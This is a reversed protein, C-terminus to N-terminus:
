NLIKIKQSKLKFDTNYLLINDNVINSELSRIIFQDFDQRRRINISM